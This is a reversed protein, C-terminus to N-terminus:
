RRYLLMFLAFLLVALGQLIVRWQMLKNSRRPNGGRALSIVGAALTGLVALMAIAVLVPFVYEM